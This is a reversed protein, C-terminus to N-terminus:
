LELYTIASSVVKEVYTAKNNWLLDNRAGWVGWLIMALKDIKEALHNNCFDEFWVGFDENGDNIHMGLLGHELCAKTFSYGVMIHFITEIGGKCLSCISYVHVRKSQLSVLTPVCNSLARWLFNKVKPPIKLYWFKRWFSSNDHM